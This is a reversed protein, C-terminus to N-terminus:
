ETRDTSNKELRQIKREIREITDRLTLAEAKLLDIEGTKDSPDVRYWDYPNNMNLNPEYNGMFGQRFGLGRGIGRGRGRQFAVDRNVPNCLGRGRGTMSGAGFPGSGDFGPM